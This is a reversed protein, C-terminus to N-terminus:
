ATTAGPAQRMEAFSALVGSQLTPYQLQLGLDERMRRNDVRRSELLFSLMGAPIKV